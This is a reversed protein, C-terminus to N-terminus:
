LTKKKVRGRQRKEKERRRHGTRRYEQEEKEISTLGGRAEYCNKTNRQIGDTEGFVL